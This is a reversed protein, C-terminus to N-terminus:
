ETLDRTFWIENLFSVDGKKIWDDDDWADPVKGKSSM